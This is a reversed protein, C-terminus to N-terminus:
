GRSCADVTVPDLLAAFRAVGKEGAVHNRGESAKAVDDSLTCAASRPNPGGPPEVEVAGFGMM